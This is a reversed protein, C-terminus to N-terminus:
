IRGVVLVLLCVHLKPIVRAAHVFSLTGNQGVLSKNARAKLLLSVVEIHGQTCANILATGAGFDKNAGAELLLQVIEVHGQHCAHMLATLGGHGTLDKSAGVSVLARVVEVHGQSCAIILGTNRNPGRLDKDAGVQALVRVTKVNGAQCAGLFEDAIERQSCISSLPLLVLQLDCSANLEIDNDLIAGDRVLQQIWVPFGHLEHLHRKLDATTKPRPFIGTTAAEEGSLM